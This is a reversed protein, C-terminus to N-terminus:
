PKKIVEEFPVGEGVGKCLEQILAVSDRGTPIFLSNKEDLKSKYAFDYDYIRHM